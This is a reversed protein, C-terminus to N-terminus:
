RYIMSTRDGMDIEWISRGYRDGMDIEWISRGYRYGMDIEWISRPDYRTVRRGPGRGGGFRSSPL